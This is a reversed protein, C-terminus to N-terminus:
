DLPVVEGEEDKRIINLKKLKRIREQELTERRRRM